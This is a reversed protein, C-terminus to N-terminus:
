PALRLHPPPADPLQWVIYQYGFEQHMENAADKTEYFAKEFAPRDKARIADELPKLKEAIFGALPEQYKPRVLGAIQMTKRMESFEHRALDWNGEKAAYYLIWFRDSVEVMLRAMGPQIEALQDLSLDGYRTHAVPSEGDATM